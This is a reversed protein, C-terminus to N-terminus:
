QNIDDLRRRRGYEPARHRRCIKRDINGRFLSFVTGLPGNGSHEPSKWWRREVGSTWNGHVIDLRGNGDLDGFGAAFTLRRNGPLEVLEADRFSGGANVLLYNSGGYSSVFIDPLADNNADVFAVLFTNQSALVGLNAPAPEFRGGINQYVDIGADGAFVLDPWGDANFDGSAIGKGVIFPEFFDTSRFRWPNEIGLDLASVARFQRDGTAPKRELAASRIETTDGASLTRWQLTPAPDFPSGNM